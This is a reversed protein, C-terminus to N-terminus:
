IAAVFPETPTQRRACPNGEKQLQERKWPSIDPTVLVLPPIGRASRLAINFQLQYNLLRMSVFYEDMDAEEGVKRGHITLMTAFALKEVHALGHIRSWQLAVSILTLTCAISM